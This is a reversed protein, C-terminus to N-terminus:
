PWKSNKTSGRHSTVAEAVKIVKIFSNKESQRVLDERTYLSSINTWLLVIASWAPCRRLIKSGGLRWLIYPFTDSDVKLRCHHTGPVWGWGRNGNPFEQNWRLLSICDCIPGCDNIFSFYLKKPAVWSNCFIWWLNGSSQWIKLQTWLYRVIPRCFRALGRMQFGWSHLRYHVPFLKSVKNHSWTEAISLTPRVCAALSSFIYDSTEGHDIRCKVM